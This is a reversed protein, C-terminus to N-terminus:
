RFTNGKCFLLLYVIEFILKYECNFYYNNVLQKVFNIYLLFM